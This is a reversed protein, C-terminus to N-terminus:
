KRRLLLFLLMLTIAIGLWRSFGTEYVVTGNFIIFFMFSHLLWDIWVNRTRYHDPQLWWYAVDLAWLASFLYSVFIGGGFGSEQQVHSMAHSHSWHHHYHFAMAVHVLYVVCAWTWLWRSLTASLASRSEPGARLLSGTALAYWLLALWITSRIRSPGIRHPALWQPLALALALGTTGILLMLIHLQKSQGM